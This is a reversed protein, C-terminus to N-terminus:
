AKLSPNVGELFVSLEEIKKKVTEIDKQGAARELDAGIQSIEDFGFSGGSGKLKHGHDKIEDLNQQELPERLSRLTEKTRELFILTLQEIGIPADPVSKEKGTHFDGKTKPVAYKKIIELLTNKKIPKTIHANSGAELSKQEEEHSAYATLAVIPTPAM